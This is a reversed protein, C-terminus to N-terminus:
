KEWFMKWLQEDVEVEHLTVWEESKRSPKYSKMVCISCCYDNLSFRSRYLMDFEMKMSLDYWALQSATKWYKHFAQTLHANLQFQSNFRRGHCGGSLQACDTFAYYYVCPIFSAIRKAINIDIYKQIDPSKKWCLIWQVKFDNM